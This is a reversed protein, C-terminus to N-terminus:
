ALLADGGNNGPGALIGIPGSPRAQGIREALLLAAREMLIMPSGLTAATYQDLDRKQAATLLLNM